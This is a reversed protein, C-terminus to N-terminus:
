LLGEAKLKKEWMELTKRDRHILGYTFEPRDLPHGQREWYRVIGIAILLIYPNNKQRGQEDYTIAFRDIM